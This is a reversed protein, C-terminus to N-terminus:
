RPTFYSGLEDLTPLGDRAGVTRLKMTAVLSGLQASTEASLGALFACLFGGIFADGAGTSDVVQEDLALRATPQELLWCGPLTARGAHAPGASGADGGYRDGHGDKSNGESNGESDGATAALTPLLRKWRGAFPFADAAVAARVSLELSHKLESLHETTAEPAGFITSRNFNSPDMFGASPPSAAAATCNEQSPETGIDRILVLSGHEGLTTVIINSRGRNMLARMGEVTRDQDLARLDDSPACGAVVFVPFTKNTFIIQCLAM